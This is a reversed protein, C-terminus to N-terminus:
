PAGGQGLAPKAKRALQRLAAQAMLNRDGGCGDRVTEPLALPGDAFRELPLTFGRGILKQAYRYLVERAEIVGRTDARTSLGKPNQYYVVHPENIKYFTKGAVMCRMWFEYDGASKFGADFLGLEDHLSRRWMPANHPANFRLMNYPTVVPLDSKYGFAAVGAWDLTPDFSYYFDQYVVDVFPLAELAGAQIEFSDARRLDDLNANTLYEGRAMKVGENWAEYIGIRTDCRRYRIGPHDELYRAIVAAEDEDSDADLILLECADDFVTQSVMNDMFAEIFDGGRFLSTIASVKVSRGGTLTFPTQPRLAARATELATDDAARDRWEDLTLTHDTGMVWCSLGDHLPTEEGDIERRVAASFFQGLMTERSLAGSGLVQRFHEIEAPLAGRREISRYVHQIFDADDLDPLLRGDDRRQAAEEGDHILSLFEHFPLGGALNDHWIRVEQEAADRGLVLRYVLAIAGTLTDAPPPPEAAAVPPPPADTVPAPPPPPAAGPAARLAGRLRDLAEPDTGNRSAQRLYFGLLRAAVMSAQSETAPAEATDTRGSDLRELLAARGTDCLRGALAALWRAERGDRFDQHKM